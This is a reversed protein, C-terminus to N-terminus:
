PTGPEHEELSDAPRGPEFDLHEKETAEPLADEGALATSTDQEDEERSTNHSALLHDDRQFDM